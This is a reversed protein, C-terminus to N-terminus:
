VRSSAFAVADELGDTWGAHGAPDEDVRYTVDMGNAEAEAVLRATFPAPSVMDYAQQYIFVPADYGDVPVALHERVAPLLDGTALPRTVLDGVPIDAVADSMEFYNATEALDVIQRGTETLYDDLPFDPRAARFGALVFALYTELDPQSFQLVPTVM